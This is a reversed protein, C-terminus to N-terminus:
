LKWARTEDILQKLWQMYPTGGTGRPDEVWRNIYEQAWKYHIERFTAMAELVDNYSTPDALDRVSSMAEIDHIVQRHDAPMFRRMDLLHDTLVSQTHPIKMFAILSPMISSQAGTEGRFNMASQSVGEYVVNEFFRIYPRFTRHYLAPDMKEPLRRLVAIQQQLASAIDGLAQDISEGDRREAAQAAAAVSRFIAAAIAEIEVHVLIFWHEDYLHVFNQLTDINGLAIPGAPDFRKWNYLAYGDYSLIPPRGLLACARCLPVALSRPLTTAKPQGVQNIYASALFGVRVYYLRLEPLASEQPPTFPWEPLVLHEAYERFGSDELLSPLDRGIEDLREFPSGPAFHTQPDRVPLFGREGFPLVRDANM